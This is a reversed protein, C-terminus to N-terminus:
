GVGDPTQESIRRLPRVEGFGAATAKGLEVQRLGGISKDIEEHRDLLL